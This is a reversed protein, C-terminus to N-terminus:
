GAPELEPMVWEGKFYAETPEYIRLSLNWDEFIDMYNVADKDGGFHIIFAGDDEPVAFASNINYVDGQAFGDADYVTVSWFEGAPVDKLTLTQPEVSEAFINLYVAREKTLGGWGTAAGANHEKLPVEGKKGFVEESTIGDVVAIEAYKARMALVEEMDWNASPIFEGTDKQELILQDQLEHAIALDAPDASNVQTRIGIFVYRHGMDEQTLTYTGPEM